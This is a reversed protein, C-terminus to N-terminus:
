NKSLKGKKPRGFFRMVYLGISSSISPGVLPGVLLCVRNYFRSDCSFITYTVVGGRQSDSNAKGLGTKAMKATKATKVM